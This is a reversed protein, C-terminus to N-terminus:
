SRPEESLLGPAHVGHVLKGLSQSKGHSAKIRKNGYVALSSFISARTHETTGVAERPHTGQPWSDTRVPQM